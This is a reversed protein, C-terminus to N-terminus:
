RAESPLGTAGDRCIGRVEMLAGQYLAVLSPSFAELGSKMAVARELAVARTLWDGAVGKGDVVADVIRAPLALHMMFADREIGFLVDVGSLLGVLFAESPRVGQPASARECLRACVEARVLIVRAHESSGTGMGALLMVWRRLRDFGLRLVVDRVSTVRRRGRYAPSNVLRILGTALMPERSLSLALREVDPEDEYLADILRAIEIIAPDLRRGRVIRPHALFYGQFLDFGAEHYREYVAQTEVREALWHHGYGTLRERHRRATDFDVGLVDVKIVSALPLLADWAPSFEFDDLAFRFGKRHWGRIAEVLDATPTLREVLEIVVCEPDIPLFAQSRLFAASANIFVPCDFREAHNSIGACLNFILESTAREEGIDIASQMADNRYLLELAHLRLSRDYIPQAALLTAEEGTKRM